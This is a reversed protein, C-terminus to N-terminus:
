NISVKEDGICHFLFIFLGQFSIIFILIFMAMCSETLINIILLSFFDKNSLGSKPWYVEAYYDLQTVVCSM